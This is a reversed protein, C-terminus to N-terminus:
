KRKNWRNVLDEIVESRTNFDGYSTDGGSMEVRCNDCYVLLHKDFRGTYIEDLGAKGGCFPCPKLQSEIKEAAAKDNESWWDNM